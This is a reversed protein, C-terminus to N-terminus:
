STGSDPVYDTFGGPPNEKSYDHVEGCNNPCDQIQIWNQPDDSPRTSITPSNWDGKFIYYYVKGESDTDKFIDGHNVGVLNNHENYDDTTWIKGTAEVLWASFNKDFTNGYVPDYNEKLDATTLSVYVHGKFSYRHGLIIQHGTKEYDFGGWQNTPHRIWVPAPHATTLDLIPDEPTPDAPPPTVPKTEEEETEETPETTPRTPFTAYTPATASPTGTSYDGVSWHVHAIRTASDYWCVIYAGTYDLSPDYKYDDCSSWVEGGSKATGRGYGVPKAAVLNGGEDFYLPNDRTYDRAPKGGIMKGSLAASTILSDASQMATIDNSEKGKEFGKEVTPYGIAALASIAGVVVLMEILGFGLKRKM